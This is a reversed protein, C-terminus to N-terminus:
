RKSKIQIRVRRISRLDAELVVIRLESTEVVEGAEPIRELLTTIYGAITIYDGAPLSMGYVNNLLQIETKGDCEIIKESIQHISEYEDRDKEDRVEGLIEEILDEITILGVAGGYEDVVFVMGQRSSKFDRLLSYARKSEPEHPVERNIYDAITAPTPQAYLVDLINVVGILNDVREDYVPIRSFGSEAVKKYLEEVSATNPVAVIDVLPTMVKELTISEMELVKDIMHLQEKKLVGEKEGMRALLKLEERMAKQREEKDQEGAMRVVVNTIKMVFWVVPRLIRDAIWLGPASKLALLGAKARFATKPLIECFIMLLLTMVITNLLEQIGERGPLAFVILQLGAMGAAASMLNDSVLVTGLLRDPEQWLKKIILARSNGQQALVDIRGKSASVVATESGAYFAKLFLSLVLLLSFIILFAQGNARAGGELLGTHAFGMLSSLVMVFPLIFLNPMGKRDKRAPKGLRKIKVLNVRKGAMKIIDFVLRNQKDSVTDGEDPIAGRLKTVYGGVTDAGSIEINLKLQKNISRLSVFGPVLFSAPDKPDLSITMASIKDYEDFIEGLVEEVIDEGTILGSVGGYEDLLIAMQQKEREMQRMLSGIKKTEYVFLPKRILTGANGPNLEQFTETSSLFEAITIQEFSKGGLIERKMGEWRPMDKVYFIGCINDLNDRFVPIRSHGADRTMVFAEGITKSAEICVMGTRPVMAEKAAIDHLEFISHILEGEQKDLAGHDETTKVIARIEEETLPTEEAMSRVGLLPLLWDTLLRLPRRFPYIVGSFFWLPRAVVRSFRESHKIAYTKPTIEGFILLIMTVILIAVIYALGPNKGKFLNNFILSGAISVFAMNVLTNGFLVTIFLRRPEDLFKVIYHSTKKKDERIRQTEVKSLATLATESGSFFSSLVMLLGLGILYILASLVNVRLSIIGYNFSTGWPM